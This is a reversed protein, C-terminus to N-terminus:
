EKTALRIVDKLPLFVNKEPMELVETVAQAFQLGRETEVIVFDNININNKGPSFYYIRSGTMFKIGIVKVM